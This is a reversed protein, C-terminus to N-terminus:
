LTTKGKKSSSGQACLLKYSHEFARRHRDYNTYSAGMDLEKNDPHILCLLNEGEM